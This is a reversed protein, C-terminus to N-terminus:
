LHPCLAQLRGSSRPTHPCTGSEGTCNAGCINPLQAIDDSCTLGSTLQFLGYFKWVRGGADRTMQNVASTNFRTATEVACAVPPLSVLSCRHIGTKMWLGGLRTVNLLQYKSKAMFTRDSLGNTKGKTAQIMLDQLRCKNMPQSGALACSWLLALLLRM